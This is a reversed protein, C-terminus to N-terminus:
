KEGRAKIPLYSSIHYHRMNEEIIQSAAKKLDIPLEAPDYIVRDWWLVWHWSGRWDLFYSKKTRLKLIANPIDDLSKEGIIRLRSPCQFGCRRLIKALERTRTGGTRDSIKVQKSLEIIEELPRGTLTAVCAQGCVPLLGQRVLKLM